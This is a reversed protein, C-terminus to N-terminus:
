KYVRGRKDFVRVLIIKRQNDIDVLARFDGIRIKSGQGEYHELYRSPNEAVEDLKNLIRQGVGKQLSNVFSSAQSSWKISYENKLFYEKELIRM